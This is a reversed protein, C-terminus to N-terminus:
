HIPQTSPVAPTTAPSAYKLRLQIVADLDANIQAIVSAGVGAGGNANATALDKQAVYVAQAIAARDAAPILGNKDAATLVVESAALSDNAETLLTVPNTANACGNIQIVAATVAVAIVFAALYKLFFKM